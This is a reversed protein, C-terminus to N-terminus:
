KDLGELCFLSVFLKELPSPRSVFLFTMNSAERNYFFSKKKPLYGSKIRLFCPLRLSACPPASLRLSARLPAKQPFKLQFVLQFVLDSVVIM